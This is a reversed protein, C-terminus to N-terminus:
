STASPECAKKLAGLTAELSKELLRQFFGPLLQVLWGEFSESSSVAVGAAAPTLVWVHIARTGLARGTWGVRRPAEVERLTSVISSGNSSWRFTTGPAIPGEIAARSVASNWTPWKPIDLLVAWVREPEAQIRIERTARVPAQENINM